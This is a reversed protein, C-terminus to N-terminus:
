PASSDVAHERRLRLPIRDDARASSRLSRAGFGPGSSPRSIPTTPAAGCSASARSRAPRAVRRAGRGMGRRQGRSRPHRAADRRRSPRRGYGPRDRGQRVSGADLGWAARRCVAGTDGWPYRRPKDGAAAVIWEDETPLRGGRAACIARAEDLAVYSAARAADRGVSARRRGEPPVEPLSRSRDISRLSRARVPGRARHAPPRPGRGGLRLPRHAGDDGSRAVVSASPRTAAASPRSSRRRVRRCPRSRAVLGPSAVVRVSGTAWSRSRSPTPCCRPGRRFFGEGCPVDDVAPGRRRAHHADRSSRMAVLAMAILM